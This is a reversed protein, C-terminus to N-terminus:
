LIIGASLRRRAANRKAAPLSEAVTRCFLALLRRTDGAGPRISKAVQDRCFKGLEECHVSIEDEVEWLCRDGRICQIIFDLFMDKVERYVLDVDDHTSVIRGQLLREAKDALIIACKNDTARLWHPLVQTLLVHVKAANLANSAGIYDSNLRPM